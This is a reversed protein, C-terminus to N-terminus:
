CGMSSGYTAGAAAGAGMAIARGTGGGIASGAGAGVAAGLGTAGACRMAHQQQPTPNCAALAAVGLAMAGILPLRKM